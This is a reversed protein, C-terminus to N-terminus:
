LPVPDPKEFSRVPPFSSISAFLTKRAERFDGVVPTQPWSFSMAGTNSHCVRLETAVNDAIKPNEIVINTFPKLATELAFVRARYLDREEMASTLLEATKGAGDQGSTENATSSM